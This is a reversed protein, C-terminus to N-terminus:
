VERLAGALNNPLIILEDSQALLAVAGDHRVQRARSVVQGIGELRQAEDDHTLLRALTQREDGEAELIVLISVVVLEGECM